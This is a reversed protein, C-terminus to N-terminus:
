AGRATLLIFEGNDSFPNVFEYRSREKQVSNIFNGNDFYNNGSNEQRELIATLQRIGNSYTKLVDVECNITFMKNNNVTVGTIYYYRNFQPIYCYNFERVDTTVKVQPSLIKNAEHLSGNLTTEDTLVKDVEINESTTKYLIIEM